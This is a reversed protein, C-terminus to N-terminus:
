SEFKLPASNGKADRHDLQLKELKHESDKEDIAGIKSHRFGYCFYVIVGLAMWILMRVISGWGTTFILALSSGAGISPVVFPGFPVKFPRHLDPQKIRLVVVSCSVLFFAFLTGVSTSEALLSPPVFAACTATFVGSVITPVVPTGYKPHLRAFAPPLLGDRAMSLFVRPMALLDVIIVSTLGAIAGVSVTIKLWNLGLKSVADALPAHTNL